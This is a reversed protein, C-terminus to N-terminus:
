DEYWRKVAGSWMMLRRILFGQLVQLTLHYGVLSM